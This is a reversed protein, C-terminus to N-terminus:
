KAQVWIINYTGVVLNNGNKITIKTSGSRYNAGDSDARNLNITYRYILDNSEDKTAGVVSYKKNSVHITIEVSSEGRQIYNLVFSSGVPVVVENVSDWGRLAISSVTDRNDGGVFDVQTVISTNEIRIEESNNVWSDLNSLVFRLTFTLAIIIVISLSAHVIRKKAASRKDANDSKALNIGLIIAYLVGATALVTIIPIYWANLFDIIPNLFELNVYGLMSNIM